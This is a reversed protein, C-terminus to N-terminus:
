VRIELLVNNKSTKFGHWRTRTVAVCMRCADTEAPWRRLAHSAADAAM